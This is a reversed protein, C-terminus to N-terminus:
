NFEDEFDQKAWLKKEYDKFITFIFNLLPIFSWITLGSIKIWEKFNKPEKTTLGWKDLLFDFKEKAKNEKTLPNCDKISMFYMRYNVTLYTFFMISSLCLLTVFVLLIATYGKQDYSIFKFTLILGLAYLLVQLLLASLHIWSSKHIIHKIKKIDKELQNM